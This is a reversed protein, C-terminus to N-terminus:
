WVCGRLVLVVRGVVRDHLGLPRLGGLGAVMEGLGAVMGGLGAVMSLAVASFASGM